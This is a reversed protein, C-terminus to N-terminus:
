SLEEELLIILDYRDTRVQSQEWAITSEAFRVTRAVGDLTWAWTNRIGVAASQFYSLLNGLDSATKRVLSLTHLRRTLSSKNTARRVGSSMWVSPQARRIELTYPYSSDALVDAISVPPGAPYPIFPSTSQLDIRCARVNYGTEQVSHVSEAFWAPVTFGTNGDIFDFQNISYDVAAQFEALQQCEDERLRQYELSLSHVAAIPAYGHRAWGSSYEGAQLLRLSGRRRPAGRLKARVTGYEFVVPRETFFYGWDVYGADVYTDNTYPTVPSM